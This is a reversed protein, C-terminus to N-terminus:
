PVFKIELKLDKGAPLTVSREQADFDTWPNGNIRVEAIQVSADDVPSVFHKKPGDLRFHLLVPLKNVYLNLYLYNLFGHEIEHYSTQYPAAKAGDGILMGDPSVGIFVGGYKHDVFYRDYFLESKRFRELYQEEHTLHYLQLQLFSGYIQIWWWVSQDALPRYPFAREVLNFWGGRADWGYRSLKDGLAKGHKLYSENGSQHYLRLFFLAATSSAGLYITDMGDVMYPIYNWSRDFHTPFGLIWGEKPDIMREISLDALHESFSLIDQDRTALFLNPMLSGQGYHSHKAKTSDRVTLDRNLSMFYGDFEKDHANTKLIDVSKLVYPLVREDATAFYYQTLGVCSYLQTSAGKFTDKSAGTQTISSFWGGYKKDWGHKLLYGVAKRAVKLYKEEGSLLYATSFGFIQRSIMAPIKDWPPRPQWERSLNTYFAGHKEDIVNEFWHPILDELAQARWFEGDMFRMKDKNKIM